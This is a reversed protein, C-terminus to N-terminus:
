DAKLRGGEKLSATVIQVLQSVTRIGNVRDNSVDISLLDRLAALIELFDLPEADLAIVIDTDETVATSDVGFHDSIESIVAETIEKVTWEAM